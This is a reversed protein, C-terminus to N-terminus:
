PKLEIGSVDRCYDFLRDQLGADRVSPHEQAPRQHYLYRGTKSADPDDSV